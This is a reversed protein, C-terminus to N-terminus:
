FGGIFLYFNDIPARVAIVFITQNYHTPVHEVVRSQHLLQPQQRLRLIILNYIKM